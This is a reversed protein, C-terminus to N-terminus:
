ESQTFLLYLIDNYFVHCKLICVKDAHVATSIGRSIQRVLSFLVRHPSHFRTGYAVSYTSLRTAAQTIIVSRKLTRRVTVRTRCEKAIM